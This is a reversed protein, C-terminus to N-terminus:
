PLERAKALIVGTLTASLKQWGRAMTKPGPPKGYCNWGGYRAVVWSLWALSGEPHPNQQKATPRERDRVLIAVLPTLSQDLVDSM